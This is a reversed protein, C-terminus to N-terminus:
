LAPNFNRSAARRITDVLHSHYIGKAFMRVGKAALHRLLARGSADITTIDLVLHVAKGDRIAQECCTELVEICASSIEGAVTLRTRQEGFDKDVRFVFRGNCRPKWEQNSRIEQTASTANASVTPMRRPLLQISTNDLLANRADIDGAIRGTLVARFSQGYWHTRLACRFSSAMSDHRCMGLDPANRWHTTLRIAM